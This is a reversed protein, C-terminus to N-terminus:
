YAGVARSCVYGARAPRPVPPAMAQPPPAPTARKLSLFPAEAANTCDLWSGLVRM